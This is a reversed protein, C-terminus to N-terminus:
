YNIHLYLTDLESEDHDVRVYRLRCGGGGTYSGRYLKGPKVARVESGDSDIDIGNHFSYIRGVWTNRVAWTSGYGQSLTVPSSIPWDWDGHPTFPDADGSSCSSGSCNEHEVGSNLFGFPNRTSEGERVIFHLHQGSSNCSPGRIISAIREGGAVDRIEEEDGLGALIAQIAAFEARVSSLLSQYKKEDNKTVELLNSKAFKQTGLVERQDELEEQLLEQDDKEEMYDAQAGELRVLLERDSEQILKLYYFSSIASNLDLSTLLFAPSDSRAMQYTQAARTSFANSLSQLSGELQDIRGGLLNIKDETQVIKTQTLNIQADYQAIQNSLTFSQSKLRSLEAEYKEVDEALRELKEETTEASVFETRVIVLVLFVVVALFIIKFTRTM